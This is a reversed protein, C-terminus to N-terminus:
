AQERLLMSQAKCICINSLHADLSKQRECRCAILSKIKINKLAQRRVRLASKSADNASRATMNYQQLLFAVFHSDTAATEPTMYNAMLITVMYKM